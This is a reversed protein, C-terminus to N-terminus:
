ILNALLENLMVVFLKNRNAAQKYSQM